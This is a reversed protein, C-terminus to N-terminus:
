CATFLGSAVLCLYVYDLNEVNRLVLARLSNVSVVHSDLIAEPFFSISSLAQRGSESRFIGADYKLREHLHCIIPMKVEESSCIVQLVSFTGVAAM